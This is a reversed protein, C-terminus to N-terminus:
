PAQAVMETLLLCISASVQTQAPFFGDAKAYWIEAGTNRDYFGLALQYKYARTMQRRTGQKANKKYFDVECMEVTQLQTKCHPIVIFDATAKDPAELYGKAVLAERLIPHFARQSTGELKVLYFLRYKSYDLKQNYRYQLGGRNGACAVLLFLLVIKVGIKANLM